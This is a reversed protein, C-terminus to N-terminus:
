LKLVTIWQKHQTNVNIICVNWIQYHLKSDQGINRPSKGLESWNIFYLKEFEGPHGWKLHTRIWCYTSIVIKWNWKVGDSRHFKFFILLYDLFSQRSYWTVSNSMKHQSWCHSNQHRVSFQLEYHLNLRL